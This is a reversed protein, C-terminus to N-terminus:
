MFTSKVVARIWVCPLYSLKSFGLLFIYIFHRRHRRRATAQCFWKERTASVGDSHVRCVSLSCDTDALPSIQWFLWQRWFLDTMSISLEPFFLCRQNNNRSINIAPAAQATLKRLAEHCIRAMEVDTLVVFHSLSQRRRTCWCTLRSERSVQHMGKVSNFINGPCIHYVSSHRYLIRSAQAGCTLCIMGGLIVNWSIRSPISGQYM